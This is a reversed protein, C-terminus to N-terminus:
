DEPCSWCLQTTNASPLPTKSEVLVIIVCSGVRLDEFSYIYCAQIKACCHKVNNPSPCTAFILGRNQACRKVGGRGKWHPTLLPFTNVRFSAAGVEVEEDIVDDDPENATSPPVLSRRAGSQGIVHERRGIADSFSSVSGCGSTALPAAGSSAPQVKKKVTGTVSFALFKGASDVDCHGDGFSSFETENFFGSSISDSGRSHASSRPAVAFRMDVSAASSQQAPQSVAASAAAGDPASDEHLLSPGSNQRDSDREAMNEPALEEGIPPNSRSITGSASTANDDARQVHEDAGDVEPSFMDDDQNAFTHDLDSFNDLDWDFQKLEEENLKIEDQPMSIDLESLDQDGGFM